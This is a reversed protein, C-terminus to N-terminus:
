TLASSILYRADCGRVGSSISSMRRSIRILGEKSLSISRNTVGYVIASIELETKFDTNIFVGPFLAILKTFICHIMDSDMDAELKYVYYYEGDSVTELVEAHIESVVCDEYASRAEVTM